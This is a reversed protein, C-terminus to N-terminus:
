ILLAVLISIPERSHHSVLAMGVAGCHKSAAESFDKSILVEDEVAATM